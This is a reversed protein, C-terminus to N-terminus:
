MFTFRFKPVKYLIHLLQTSGKNVKVNVQQICGDASSQFIKFNWFPFYIHLTSLTYALYCITNFKISSLNNYGITYIPM